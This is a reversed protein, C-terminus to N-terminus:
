NEMGAPQPLQGAWNTGSAVFCTEGSSERLALTWTEGADSSFLVVIAGENVMGGGIPAEGYRDHLVEVVAPFALCPPAGQADAAGILASVALTSLIAKM